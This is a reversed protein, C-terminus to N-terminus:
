ATVLNQLHSLGLRQSTHKMAQNNLFCKWSAHQILDQQMKERGERLCPLLAAERMLAPQARESATKM